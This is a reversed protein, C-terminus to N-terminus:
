LDTRQLRLFGGVLPLVTWALFVATAAVPTATVVDPATVDPLTAATLNQYAAFPSTEAFAHAWAPPPGPPVVLGNALYRVATPISGWFLFLLFFAGVALVGARGVTSVSASIGLAVALMSVGFALAAAFGGLAPGVAPVGGVAVFGALATLYGVVLSTALFAVRGLFTGVVLDRRSHPPALLLRIEGSERPGALRDYGFQLAVLPVFLYALSRVMGGLTRTAVTSRQAYVALGFLLAFLVLTLWVAQSRFPDRFDREAITRVSPSM